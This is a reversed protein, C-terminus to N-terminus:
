RVRRVHRTLPKQSILATEVDGLAVRAARVARLTDLRGRESAEGRPPTSVAMRLAWQCVLSMGVRRTDVGELGAYTAKAARDLDDSLYITYRPM